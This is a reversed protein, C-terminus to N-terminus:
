DDDLNSDYKSSSEPDTDLQCALRGPLWRAGDETAKADSVIRKKKKGHLEVHFLMGEAEEQVEEPGLGPM